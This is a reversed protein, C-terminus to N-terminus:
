QKTDLPQRQGAPALSRHDRLRLGAQINAFLISGDASFAPGAFESDNLENGAIPCSKGEATVGVLHPIGGGDEALIEGGYPSVTINDPGDDNDTDAAPDLNVGFITALTVSETAPDYFWVQGDHEIASGDSL